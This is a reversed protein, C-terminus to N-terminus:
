KFTKVHEAVRTIQEDSLQDKFAPMKDHGDRVVKALEEVPRSAEAVISPGTGGGGSAGHCGQCKAAWIEAGTSSATLAAPGGGGPANASMGVPPGAPASPQCGTLWVPALTATLMGMAGLWHRRNM